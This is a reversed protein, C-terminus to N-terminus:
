QITPTPSHQQQWTEATEAKGPVRAVFRHVMEGTTEIAQSPKGDMRDAVQQIAQMDGSAAMDLLKRAIARLSRSDEGAAAIEVRLADAFPKEKGRKSAEKNGPQFAM